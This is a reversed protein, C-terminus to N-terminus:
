KDLPEIKVKYLEGHSLNKSEFVTITGDANIRDLAIYGRDGDRFAEKDEAPITYGLFKAYARFFEIPNM